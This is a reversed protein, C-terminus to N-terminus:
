VQVITRGEMIGLEVLIGPRHKYVYSVVFGVVVGEMICLPGQTTMMFAAFIEGSAKFFSDGKNVVLLGLEISTGMYTFVDSIIGAFFGWWFPSLGLRKATWFAFYGSFSGLIGMSFINGGLTTLGGHALFLAQILLAIGAIPVSVLPGLFIASMGTGAPHATAMGNLAVVPVPFCSFVFVAAGIMGVLPMYGPIAKRRKKIKYTGIAVFPAAVIFWLIAWQPPLIGETIHMAYVAHPLLLLTFIIFLILSLRKM